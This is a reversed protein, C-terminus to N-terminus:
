CCASTRTPRVHPQGGSLNDIMLDIPIMKLTYGSYQSKEIKVLLGESGYQDRVKKAAHYAEIYTKYNM